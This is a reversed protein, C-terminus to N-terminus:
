KIRVDYWVPLELHEGIMLGLVQLNTRYEARSLLSVSDASPRPTSPQPTDNNTVPVEQQLVYRFKGGGLHLNLEGHEVATSKDRKKIIESIYVSQVSRTDISWKQVGDRWGSISHTERTIVIERTETHWQYVHYLVNLVMGFAILLGLYPLWQPNPILTGADPLAIDSTLTLGSVLVYVGVWLIGWLIRELRQRQWKRHRVIRITDNEGSEVHWMGLPFPLPPLERPPPPPAVPEPPVLAFPIGLQKALTEGAEQALEKFVDKYPDPWYAIGCWRSHRKESLEPSLVLGLHWAEDSKQWGLVVQLIDPKTLLGSDPLRRMLGFPANYHLGDSEIWALTEGGHSPLLTWTDDTLQITLNDAALIANM